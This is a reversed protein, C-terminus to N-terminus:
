SCGGVMAEHCDRGQQGAWEKRLPTSLLSRDGNNQSPHIIEGGPSGAGVWDLQGVNPPGWIIPLCWMQFGMHPAKIGEGRCLHISLKNELM